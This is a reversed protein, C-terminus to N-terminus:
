RPTRNGGRSCCGGRHDSTGLDQRPRRDKDQQAGATPRNINSFAQNNNPDWQWIKPPEYAAADTM